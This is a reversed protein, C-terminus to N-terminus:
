TLRLAALWVVARCTVPRSRRRVLSWTPLTSHPHTPARCSAHCQIRHSVRKLPRQTARLTRREWQYALPRECWGDWRMEDSSLEIWNLGSPVLHTIHVLALQGGCELRKTPLKEHWSMKVHNVSVNHFNLARLKPPVSTSAPDTTRHCTNLETRNLSSHWHIVTRYASRNCDYRRGNLWAHLPMWKM